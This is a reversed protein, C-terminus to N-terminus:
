RAQLAIDGGLYIDRMTDNQLIEKGGELAIKGNELVYTRDAIGVAQQVNQEVVLIAVGENKIEVIKEFVEKVVKPSLGLSPEDLLILRPNQMMARAIALVQQQGGSLHAAREAQKQKLIPYKKFIDVMKRKVATRNDILFAGMQLNEVVTMNAFVQRGQPVFSIGLRLLEHTKM